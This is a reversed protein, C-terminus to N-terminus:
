RVARKRNSNVPRDFMSVPVMDFLPKVREFHPRVAEVRAPDATPSGDCFPTLLKTSIVILLPWILCEVTFSRRPYQVLCHWGVCGVTARAADLRRWLFVWVKHWVTEAEGVRGCFGSSSASLVM